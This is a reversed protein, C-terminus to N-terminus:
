SFRHSFIISLAIYSIIIFPLGAIKLTIILIAAIVLLIYQCVNDLFSFKKMKFSFMPLNSVLLGCSILITFILAWFNNILPSLFSKSDFVEVWVLSLIFLTNAPAALGKFYHNQTKDITFKALRIASFLPILLGILEYSFSVPNTIDLKSFPFIFSANDDLSHHILFMMMFGPLLGFSVMDALSDLPRGIKSEVNWLRATMGDAFDFLLSLLTLCSVFLWIKKETLDYPYNIISAIYFCGLCGCFLNGLTLLNPIYNKM